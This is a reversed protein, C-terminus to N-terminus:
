CLALPGNEDVPLMPAVPEGAAAGDELLTLDPAPLAAAAQIGRYYDIGADADEPEDVIGAALDGFLTEGYTEEEDPAMYETELLDEAEPRSEPLAQAADEQSSDLVIVDDPYPLTGESETKVRVLREPAFGVGLTGTPNAESASFDERVRM